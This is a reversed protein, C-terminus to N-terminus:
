TPTPAQTPDATLPLVMAVEDADKETAGDAVRVPRREATPRFGFSSAFGVASANDSGAWFYLLRCGDETAQQAATSVLAWGVHEGRVSPATWLGFVEGTEPDENHLGLCVVGVPGDGREAVIRHARIMRERWYAEDRSAEDDFGAVFAEPADQLAALRVQQYLRWEDAGLLRVKIDEM